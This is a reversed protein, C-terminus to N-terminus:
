TFRRQRLVEYLCIGTAVSVNLTEVMGSMPVHVVEDCLARTLRRLGAGESGMVLALPRRLDAAYLSSPADHTAGILWVGHKKLTRLTRALNAVRVLPVLEAAGSAVKRVTPTLSVSRDKPTILAHAGAAEATRLCAGLNHPETVRDLVLLLMDTGEKIIMEYADQERWQFGEHCLAVVGQHKTTHAKQV